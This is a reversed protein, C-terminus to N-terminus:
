RDLENETVHVAAEIKADLLKSYMGKAELERLFRYAALADQFTVNDLGMDGYFAELQNRAEEELLKQIEDLTPTM